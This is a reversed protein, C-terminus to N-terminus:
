VLFSALRKILQKARDTEPKFIQFGHEEDGAEFLEVQGQWGSKKISEYYLIDRDKFEDKDTVTVLIKSCGLTALSPAGPAFPNVMPNDIGGEANPYVFKWVKIALSNEHDEAPESGIPKSGWFFPTCLLAGLIKLNNPLAETGARIALNHALNAGNVDGGIYVKNFDGYDLLWSEREINNDATLDNTTHSAVWQLSTWGDEYAAPLPHEPLLRFDVSVAIINAESALLNLYRHCSFSFPSEVCFAGAHFYLLIPLRHNNHHSKPLFIRASLPPNSNNSIVIDKSSVGTQPDQLSPPVIPSSMLREITGDKYVRILPLLEKEIEKNITNSSAAM